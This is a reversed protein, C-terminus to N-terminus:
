QPNEFNFDAFLDRLDNETLNANMPDESDQEYKGYTYTGDSNQIEDDLNIMESEYLNNLIQPDSTKFHNETKAFRFDSVTLKIPPEIRCAVVDNWDTTRFFPHMKVESVGPRLRPYINFCAAVLDQLEYSYSKFHNMTVKGTKALMNLKDRSLEEDRVCDDILEVLISAWSWIDAKEDILQRNAVEPAKYYVTGAITEPHHSPGSSIDLCHDFDTIMVHGSTTILVNEPKLDVHVIKLAHLYEIGCLIEACYFRASSESMPHHSLMLESLDMGCGATMVMAVSTGMWFASSLIPLFPSKNTGGATSIKELVKREQLARIITGKNKLFSRKLAYKHGENANGNRTVEYVLSFKGKAIFKEVVFENAQM